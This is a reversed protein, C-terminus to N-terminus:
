RRDLLEALMDLEVALGKADAEALEGDVARRLRERVSAPGTVSVVADLARAMSAVLFPPLVPAPV